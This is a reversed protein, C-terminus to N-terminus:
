GDANGNRLASYVPNNLALTLAITIPHSTVASISAPLFRAYSTADIHDPEVARRKALALTEHLADVLDAWEWRGTIEPPTVLLMAQPPEANPRDYQFTVGTTEERGPIVETWEDLLLGCQPATKDFPMVYHATYLLHDHEFKYDSPYPLALWSDNPLSPLQTPQLEPAAGGLAEALMTLAEWHSMPERVRAVGYLWDDVPFDVETATRLHNLLADQSDFAKQFEDAPVAPLTIEPLMLFDEGLLAAAAHSVAAERAAATTSATYATLDANVAAIRQDIDRVLSGAGALLDQSMRVIEAADENLALRVYDYQDLDASAASIDGFLAALDPNTSARIAALEARKAVFDAQRNEIVAEYAAPTPPSPSTAAVAVQAEIGRLLEFRAEDSTTPPLANYETMLVSFRDLRARWRTDLDALKALLAVYRARKWAVAFGFGTQPLAYLNLVSLADVFSTLRHDIQAVLNDQNGVADALLPELEGVLARLVDLPPTLMDRVRIVRETRYVPLSQATSTAENPLALDTARLPRASFLLTRLSGVLAGLEFFSILGPIRETYAIKITGDPRLSDRLHRAILDDLAGMAPESEVGLMFLLDLPQLQLDAQTVIQRADLGTGDTLYVVVGTQGPAPMLRALWHNLAPEGSARPTLRLGAHPSATPALGPELHLGVRHTLGVGSRPTQVVDPLLPLKGSSFADLSAAARDYNGLAVQHVGEAIGLDAVADHTDLLRSAEASIAAAQADSADPLSAIGFPYNALGTEQIHEVLAVGNLVNRAEIAAISVTDDTETEALSDARLPFAKRLKYIFADVEAQDHRDHMGREFQYGLLAALSQGGQIGELISMARRVRESSLNVAFLDPQEPSANSLYGNRIVAATTAHNLSPAHVYGANASDRMPPPATEPQFIQRLEADDLDVPELTRQEPRVNELWGYAGLYLGQRAAGEGRGSSRMLALQYYVLGQLWADLRYASTDLHEAFIRELRATSLDRLRDLGALQERLRAAEPATNLVTPIYDAVLLDDRVGTIQPQHRYLLNWRSENVRPQEAVHIFNAEVRLARLENPPFVQAQAYLQTGTDYYGLMVAHRLMLYLLASPPQDDIFGQQRRITELSVRAADALWELYNRDDTTYHRIGEKESLPQDDILDGTLKWPTKLFYKDLLDPRQQAAPDYGHDRLIETGQAQLKATVILQQTQGSFGQLNMSNIVQALSEAYRTYYEASTAHLGLVDLLIQHPDGSQGVQSVRGVLNGWTSFARMLIEHLKGIFASSSSTAGVALNIEGQRPWAMRSYATAPLIGYPQKGIRLAPTMGRGSVFRTFFQRTLEVVGDDFVPALMTDMLYGITAPWLALNMAQAERVDTNHAHLVRELVAPAIGLWEALWQGDRREFWDATADFASDGRTLLEYGHDPDERAAYGAGQAETNNTPTGQPLLSLGARSRHHNALLAEFRHQGDEEDSSLRVGLVLLRDFGRAYADASLSVRFGMGRRIAQDFDVLWRMEDGVVIRAGEQRMQESPPALPNPGVILPSPIPNGLQELTLTDGAYGLLVLRDPLVTVHPARSWARRKTNTAEAREFVVTAVIVPTVDRGLTPPPDGINVPRYVEVVSQAREAGVTAILRAHATEVAAADGDARWVGEWYSAAATEDTADLPADTAIVLILANDPRAPQASENLPRYQEVIWLARGSGHGAVLDRWAARREVDRDGASWFRAWYARAHRVEAESLIPEFTDVTCDDPYVRVWLEYRVGDTDSLRRFRTEIRLPLLLVPFADSLESVHQRPDTQPLFARFQESLTDATARLEERMESIRQETNKQQVELERRQRLHAESQPDFRRELEVQSTALQKRKEEALFVAQQQVEIQRRQAQLQARIDQFGAPPM